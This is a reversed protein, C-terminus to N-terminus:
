KFNRLSYIVDFVPVVRAVNYQGTSISLVMIIIDLMHPIRLKQWTVKQKFTGIQNEDYTIYRYIIICLLIILPLILYKMYKNPLIVILVALLIRVPICVGYYLEKIPTM